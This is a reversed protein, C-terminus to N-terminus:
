STNNFSGSPTVGSVTPSDTVITILNTGTGNGTSAQVLINYTGVGIGAPMILGPIETSTITGAGPLTLLTGNVSVATVTSAGTGGHFGTGTVTLTKASTNNFSGAPTVGSVTPADTVITILNTGTGSGTSAEVLINYTGIGIGVPMVLGPISTSTIGSGPLTLATGNVSVATVTSTGTGGTFGTGTVTLTKASTNNFSGSPTVSGVTPADTVITILNTGTGNGTSAEVLISYTGVGIGSPMILGPITTGTIGSGPLTLLTGNVSVATVTSTGTGGLFGTGTVTLTKAATNNFSGSPTVGSVVPADTVITILNTGTGSGTSAEVLISYTGIGIGAPMVVGPIETSTISGAGPLTLLTGNVSVATVTSAGTGGHFGTGTVTLTKASTNNFSGAPTVGSVTPADTVITILNTGTGSGTSAEVLISYTGIGIGAPMVVEQHHSARYQRSM